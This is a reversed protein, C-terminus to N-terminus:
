FNKLSFQAFFNRIQFGKSFFTAIVENDVFFQNANKVNNARGQLCHGNRPTVDVGLAPLSLLSRVTNTFYQLIRVLVDGGCRSMEEM